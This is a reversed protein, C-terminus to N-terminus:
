NDVNSTERLRQIFSAEEKSIFPFNSDAFDLSTVHDVYRCLDEVQKARKPSVLSPPRRVHLKDHKSFVLDEHLITIYKTFLSLIIADFTDSDANGYFHRLWDMTNGDSLLYRQFSDGKGFFCANFDDIYRHYSSVNMISNVKFVDEFKNEFWICTLARIRTKCVDPILVHNQTIQINYNSNM